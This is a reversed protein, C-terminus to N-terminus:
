SKKVKLTLARAPNDVLLTQLEQDTFGSTLLAPLLWDFLDTYARFDGGDPEGPRYWGADHSILVQGLLGWRKMQALREVYAPIQTQHVGDFSIWAGATAAERHKEMDPENQAHIWIYAGPAVGEERLIELQPFALRAPGTHVGITLGTELHCRAAARILTEHTSSLRDGSVGIKMFGPRVATDDIGGEFEQIWREALQDPSERFAYPPLHAHDRAGYLGTNSVLQLEAAESLMQLLRADRGLFAPTCDVLTQVGRERIDVLYPLVKNVVAKRDWRDFSINDAGIFDVLIHEHILTKGLDAPAIKGTVTLISGEAKAATLSFPLKMWAAASGLTLLQHFRRRDM